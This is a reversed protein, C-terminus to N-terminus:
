KKNKKIKQSVFSIVLMQTNECKINLFGSKEKKKQKKKNKRNDWINKYAKEEM